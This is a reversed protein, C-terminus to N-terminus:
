GKSKTWLQINSIMADDLKEFDKVTVNETYYFLFNNWIYKVELEAQELM